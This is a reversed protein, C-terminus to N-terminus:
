PTDKRNTHQRTHEERLAAEVGAPVHYGLAALEAVKDAAEEFTLGYFHEGAQPLDIEVREAADVIDMVVHNREIFAEIWEDVSVTGRAPLAPPMEPLVLRGGAVGVFVGEAAEYVYLDSRFDDSSWRCYSM